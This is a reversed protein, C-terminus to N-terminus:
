TAMTIYSPCWQDSTPYSYNAIKSHVSSITFTIKTLIIQLGDKIDYGTFEYVRNGLSYYVTRSNTTMPILTMVM